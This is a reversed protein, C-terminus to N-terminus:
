IETVAYAKLKRYLSSRSLGLAAAARVRNGDHEELAVIIADREAVEITTLRRTSSSRCFGPLDDVQIEGVPRRELAYKLVERLQTLNGPWSYSLLVRETAAHLRVRRGPALDALISSVLTPLITTRHRLAPVTVSHEFHDLIRHFPLEDAVETGLTAAVLCPAASDTASSSRARSALDTFFANVVGIAEAPLHELGRLVVLTPTDGSHQRPVRIRDRASLQGSDIAVDRGQPWRERFSELVLSLRGTGPEGMVVATQQLALATRVTDQARVWAPNRPASAPAQARPLGPTHPPLPQVRAVHDSARPAEAGDGQPIEAVTLAIGVPEGGARVTRSRIQLQRGSDLGLVDSSRDRRWSMFRAHDQVTESEAPSLMRQARQNSITSGGLAIVGEQTRSDVRLYADFLAQQSRSRDHLLNRGIDAAAANVMADILPTWNGALLSVDLVGEARGSLPDLIPAGICAFPVLAESFHSAGIISVPAQTELVSGVGNTGVHEEEFSFGPNLDVSDLIRGVSTSCDRRDIIRAKADTLVITVPVDCMDASLRELVPRACRALRSDLDLDDHFPVRYIDPFVGASRSRQWSAAVADPVGEKAALEEGTLFQKRAAAIRKVGRTFDASAAHWTPQTLALEGRMTVYSM